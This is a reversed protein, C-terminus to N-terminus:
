AVATVSAATLCAIGRRVTEIRANTERDFQDLVTKALEREEPTMYEAQAEFRAMAEAADAEAAAVAKSPEVSAPEPLEEAEKSATLGNSEDNGAGREALRNWAAKGDDAGLQRIGARTASQRLGAPIAGAGSTPGADDHVPVDWGPVHDGLGPKRNKGKEAGYYVEEMIAQEYAAIPDTVHEKAMIELVRGRTKDQVTALDIGGEKLAEDFTEENHRANEELVAKTQAEVATEPGEQGVRYVKRGRGEQDLLGHLDNIGVQTEGGTIAGQDHLYGAETAAELAADESLGGKRFLPGFGPVFKPKGGFIVDLDPTRKLGGKSALFELLTYHAPDKARPGRAAKPGMHITAMPEQAPAVGATVASDVPPRQAAIEEDSAIMRNMVGRIEDPIPEGLDALNRYIATLWQKFKEFAGALGQSPANGDRLYQEFGRAWKEHQETTLEDGSKAGLWHLATALDDKVAPPAEARAADRVMEDLWLHSSEHMFTSANAAKFLQIIAQNNNLTIRGQPETKGSQFLPFGEELAAKRLEPTIALSHVKTVSGPGGLEEEGSFHTDLDREGPQTLETEEVKSGFKKGLKNAAAPLIKDYFGSMGEGGVKLDVGKLMRYGSSHNTEGVDNAIRDAVDKGVLDPLDEIPMNARNLVVDDDPGKTAEITVTKGDKSKLYHIADIQKSLDYRAAQVDGPTWAVRDYGNEAGYRIMRKLALEPWTTKFPADPIGSKLGAAANRERMLVDHRRELDPNRQWARRAAEDSDEREGERKNLEAINDDLDRDIEAVSRSTKDQGQYGQRKGKQHWDSQIEELFLTKKGDIARDNFRVHALVNPEDWHSSQFNYLRSEVSNDTNGWGKPAIFATDEDIPLTLLLERYNQGGPLQYSGFKTQGGGGVEGEVYSKARDLSVPQLMRNNNKNFVTYLMEGNLLQPKIWYGGAEFNGHKDQAWELKPASGKETEKVEIQNAWVYDAVQEKTVAGKQQKLWDALGLWEMEEPKVGTANRLMGLWQDPSAKSQKSATLAREVASYFVPAGTRQDYSRGQIRDLLDTQQAEDGFLGIDMPKQEVTPKLPENAARQAQEASTIKEAGPLELQGELGGRKAAQNFARGVTYPGEEASRIDLGEGKYLELAQDADLGLRQARTAYRAAVIAANADAEEASMGTALLRERVDDQISRRYDLADAIRPDTTAAIKLMDSTRVPQDQMLAAATAQMADAKAQYPLRDMAADVVFEGVAPHGAPATEFERELEAAAPAPEVPAEGSALARAAQEEDGPRPEAQAPATGGPAERPVEGAVAPAASTEIGADAAGEPVIPQGRIARVSEKIAPWAAHMVAGMGAGMIISELAETMTYDRGEMTQSLAEIPQLATMGVVGQAAGVGARIATRGLVSDGASALLKGYRAEGVVPISFAAINIPDIAGVLLSTGVDLASPIIGQPGRAITAARERQAQAHDVMIDLAASKITPTDPLSVTQDLGAKKIRAKADDIPLDAGAAAQIAEQTAGPAPMGEDFGLGSPVNGEAATMENMHLLQVTPLTDVAESLSAGLRQTRTAGMTSIGEDEPAVDLNGSYIPAM